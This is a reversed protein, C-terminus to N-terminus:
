RSNGPLAGLCMVDFGAVPERRNQEFVVYWEKACQNEMIEIRCELAGTRDRCSFGNGELDARAPGPGAQYRARVQTQFAPGYVAPDASRWQGFDIGGPGRGEPPAARAAAGTTAQPPPPASGRTAAIADPTRAQGGTPLDMPTTASLGSVQSNACGALVLFAALFAARM